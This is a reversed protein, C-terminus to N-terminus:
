DLMKHIQEVNSPLNGPTKLMETTRKQGRSDGRQLLFGKSGQVSSSTSEVLFVVLVMVEVM